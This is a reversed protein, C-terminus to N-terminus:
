PVFIEKFASEVQEKIKPDLDSNVNWILRAQESFQHYSYHNYLKDGKDDPYKPPRKSFYDNYTTEIEKIRREFQKEIDIIKKSRLFDFDNTEETDM